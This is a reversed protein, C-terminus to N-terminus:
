LSLRCDLDLKRSNKGADIVLELDTPPVLRRHRPHRSLVSLGKKVPAECRAHERPAVRPRQSDPARTDSPDPM